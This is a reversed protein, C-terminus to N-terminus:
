NMRARSINLDLTIKTYFFHVKLKATEKDSIFFSM